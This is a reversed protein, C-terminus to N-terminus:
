IEADVKLYASSIEPSGPQPTANQPTTGFQGKTSVLGRGLHRRGLRAGSTKGKLDLIKRQLYM